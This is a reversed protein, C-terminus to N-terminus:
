LEAATQILDYLRLLAQKGLVRRPGSMGRNGVVILGADVREAVELLADAPDREVLHSQPKLGALRIATLLGVDGLGAVVVSKRIM